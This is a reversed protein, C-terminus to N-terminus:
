QIQFTLLILLTPFKRLTMNRFASFLQFNLYYQNERM